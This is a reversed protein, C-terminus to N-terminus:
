KNLMSKQLIRIGVIAMGIVTVGMARGYTDRYSGPCPHPDSNRGNHTYGYHDIASQYGNKRAIDGGIVGGDSEYTNGNSFTLVYTSSM